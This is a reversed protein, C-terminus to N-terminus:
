KVRQKIFTKLDDSIIKGLDNIKNMANQIKVPEQTIAQGFPIKIDNLSAIAASHAAKIKIDLNLNNIRVLDEIGKGDTIFNGQYMLMVGRINETFDSISNKSFPSEEKSPDANEFPSKIKGGAVEECIGSMATIIGEYAALQTTFEKSGKGATALQKNYGDSWITKVESTLKVLNQTLAILYDKERKTLSSAPKNGEKGWLLYEIPHFGKLAEDLKNVYEESLPADNALIGELKTFDVPWTDIRPDINEAKIPGFLWAETQEWIVRVAKWASRATTLNAETPTKTLENVAKQLDNAKALMEIYSRTCVNDAISALIDTKLQEQDIINNNNNGGSKKKCSSLSFFGLLLAASIIKFVNKNM